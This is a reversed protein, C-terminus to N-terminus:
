GLSNRYETPTMNVYKKFLKSFYHADNIGIMDSVEYTKLTLDKLLEKAAEMRIEALYDVFNKGLEKTFMRSLYYTSVYTEAALDQLTISDKYNDNIYDVAQQLIGNINQKNYENIRSVISMAVTELLEHIEMINNSEDILKYLSPMDGMREEETKELAKISHRIHNIDYMMTWYYHKIAEPKASYALVDEQMDGLLRQVKEEDGAQIAMTLQKEYKELEGMERRQYFGTLDKFLMISDPGMYFRYALCEECEYARDKLSSLHYGMNSISISVTFNFCNKILAALNGAMDAVRDLNISGGGIAFLLFATKEQNITVKEVTYSESFLDSVTNIMGFQYLHRQEKQNMDLGEEDITVYMCVYPDDTIQYLKQQYDVTDGSVDYGTILDYFLKEKLIPLSEEFKAKLKEQEIAEEREMRLELVARKLVESIEEIKSPKLIYDYAGVKIAEQLYSFDRYGTLIIFKSAPLIEKGRRIMELGNIEPMNIDVFVIDPQESAMLELGEVGDSGEAVVQCDYSKWNIINVLGKRIFPEDDVILVKFM